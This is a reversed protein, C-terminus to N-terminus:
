EEQFIREQQVFETVGAIELKAALLDHELPKKRGRRQIDNSSPQLDHEYSRIQSHINLEKPISFM